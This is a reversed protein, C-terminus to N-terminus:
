ASARGIFRRDSDERDSPLEPSVPKNAVVVVVWVTEVVVVKKRRGLRLFSFPWKNGNGAFTADDSREGM